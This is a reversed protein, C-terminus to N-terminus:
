TSGTCSAPSKKKIRESWKGKERQGETVNSVYIVGYGETVFVRCVGKGDTVIAICNWGQGDTVDMREIYGITLGGIVQLAFSKESWM